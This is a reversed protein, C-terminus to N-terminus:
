QMILSPSLSLSLSPISHFTNSNARLLKPLLTTYETFPHSARITLTQTNNAGFQYIIMGSESEDAHVCVCVPTVNYLVSIDWDTIIVFLIMLFVFMVDYMLLRNVVGKM